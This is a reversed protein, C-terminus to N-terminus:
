NVNNESSSHQENGSPITITHSNPTEWMLFALLALACAVIIGVGAVIHYSRDATAAPDTIMSKYDDSPIFRYFRERWQKRIHRQLRLFSWGSAAVAVLYCSVSVAVLSLVRPDVSGTARAGTLTIGTAIAVALAGALSRTSEATKATDDAISKRLDAQAKIAERSLESQSLQFALRASELINTGAEALGSAITENRTISRAVESAYLAHRQEATIPDEYVWAAALKLNQYGKLGLEASLTTEKFAVNLRPPGSFIASDATLLETALSRLLAPASYRAFIKFCEDNELRDTATDRLLWTRIDPPALRMQQGERVLELPSKTGASPSFIDSRGWPQFSITGSSFPQEAFAIQWVGDDPAKLAQELGARTLIRREAGGVDKHLTAIYPAMSQDLDDPLAPQGAADALDLKWAVTAAMDALTAAHESSLGSITLAAKNEVIQVAKQKAWSDLQAGIKAPTSM